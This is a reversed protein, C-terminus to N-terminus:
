ESEQQLITALADPATIELTKNKFRLLGEAQYRSLSRNLHRVSCGLMAALAERKELQFCLGDSHQRQFLYGALRIELPLAHQSMQHTSEYLKKGLHRIVFRLFDPERSGLEKIRLTPISLVVADTIAQVNSVVPAREFLELDGIVSLPTEFSFVTQRGDLQCCDVQLKGDVLLCFETLPQQQRCLFQGRAIDKLKLARCITEPLTEQLAYRELYALKRPFHESM